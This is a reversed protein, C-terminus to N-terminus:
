LINLLYSFFLPSVLKNLNKKLNQNIIKILNLDNRRIRRATAKPQPPPPPPRAFTGGGDPDVDGVPSNSTPIVSASPSKM